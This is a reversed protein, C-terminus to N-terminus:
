AGEMGHRRKVPRGRAVGPLGAPGARCRTRAAPRSAARSSRSPNFLRRCLASLKSAPARSNPSSSSDSNPAAAPSFTPWRSVPPPVIIRDRIRDHIGWREFLRRLHLGSPGTSFSLTRAALVANMVAEESGIDPKPRGAPVAIAIGSRVLDVRSGARLKHRGILEDIVPSALVVVDAPEGAEIRKAVDIGGAAEASVTRSTEREYRAALESLVSRTAMSSLLKLANRPVPSHYGHAGSSDCLSRRAAPRSVSPCCRWGLLFAAATAAVPIGISGYGHVGAGVLFNVGAGVFRGISTVFAFATARIATPYQEPLWLNYM